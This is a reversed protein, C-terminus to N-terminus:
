GQIANVNFAIMVRGTGDLGLDFPEHVPSIEQYYSGNITTNRVNVANYAARALAFVDDYKNGRAVFQASPRKYDGGPNHIRM